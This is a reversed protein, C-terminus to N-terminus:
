RLTSYMNLIWADNLLVAAMVARWGYTYTLELPGTHVPPHLITRANEGGLSVIGYAEEGVVPTIYVDSMNLSSGADMAGRSSLLFRVNNLHGVESGLITGRSAYTSVPQFSGIDDLDIGLATHGMAWYADSVPATGINRGAEITNTMKVADVADLTARIESIDSASINTPADGNAGHVCNIRPAAAVLKDRIIANETEKLNEAFVATKWNLDGDQSTLTIQDSIEAWCGYWNVEVNIIDRTLQVPPPTAGSNGLPVMAPALRNSRGFRLQGGSKKPLVKQKAGAKFNYYPREFSLLAMDFYDQVPPSLISTTTIAM